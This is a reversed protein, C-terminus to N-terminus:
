ASAEQFSESTAGHPALFLKMLPAAMMSTVLAM